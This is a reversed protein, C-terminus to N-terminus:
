AGEEGATIELVRALHDLRKDLRDQRELLADMQEDRQRDLDANLTLEQGMVKATGGVSRFRPLEAKVLAKMHSPRLYRAMYLALFLTASGLLMVVFVRATWVIPDWSLIREM